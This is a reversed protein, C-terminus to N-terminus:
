LSSDEYGTKTYTGTFYPINNDCWEKSPENGAGFAATLDILMLGDFWMSGATKSNNYDFRAKHNGASFDTGKYSTVAAATRIASAMTWTKATKITNHPIIRPEAEPWYM